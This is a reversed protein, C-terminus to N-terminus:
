RKVSNDNDGHSVLAMRCPSQESFRVALFLDFRCPFNDNHSLTRPRGFHEGRHFVLWLFRRGRIRTQLDSIHYSLM